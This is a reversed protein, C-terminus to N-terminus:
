ADDAGMTAPHRERLFEMLAAAHRNAVTSMSEGHVRYSGVIRRVHAGHAGAAALRLWFDLGGLRARATGRGLVRRGREWASRRVLSCTVPM